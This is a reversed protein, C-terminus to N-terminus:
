CNVRSSMLSYMLLCSAQAEGRNAKPCYALTWSIIACKSLVEAVMVMLVLLHMACLWGVMRSDLMEVAITATAPCLLMVNCCFIFSGLMVKDECHGSQPPKWTLVVAKWDSGGRRAKSHPEWGGTRLRVSIAV